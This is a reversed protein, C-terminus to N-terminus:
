TIFCLTKSETILHMIYVFTDNTEPIVALLIRERGVGGGGGGGGGGGLDVVVGIIQTYM